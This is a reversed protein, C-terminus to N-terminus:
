AILVMLMNEKRRLSLHLCRSFIDESAASPITTICRQPIHLRGLKHTLSSRLRHLLFTQFGLDTITHFYSHSRSPPLSCLPFLLPFLSFVYALPCQRQRRPFNGFYFSDQLLLYVGALAGAGALPLSPHHATTVAKQPLIPTALTLLIGLLAPRACNVVPVFGEHYDDRPTSSCHM